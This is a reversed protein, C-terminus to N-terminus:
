WGLHCNGDYLSVCTLSVIFLAYYDHPSFLILFNYCVGSFPQLTEFVDECCSGLCMQFKCSKCILNTTGYKSIVSVIM